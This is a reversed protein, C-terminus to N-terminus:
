PQQKYYRNVENKFAKPNIPKFTPMAIIRKNETIQIPTEIGRWPMIYLVKPQEQSGKVQSEILVPESNKTSLTKAVSTNVMLPALFLCLVTMTRSSQTFLM